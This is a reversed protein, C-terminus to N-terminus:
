APVNDILRTRGLQAAGLVRSPVRGAGDPEELTEADRIAVYDVKEFGLALLEKKAWAELFAHEKRGQAQYKHAVDQLINYFAPAIRRQEPTLYANRSSMALGDKERVTPAGKVTVPICLDRVMRRVIQLQQFDKEGFITVDPMVQLLMRTVVTAVGTIFNQRFTGELVDGIGPVLVQTTAGKPYMELISPIFLLHAGATSLHAADGAEDHPYTEFDESPSFQRPNVFISAVVRDSLEAAQSVLSSHGDHIAGMTMVLSVKSGEDRWAKVRTRLDATKRVIDIPPM